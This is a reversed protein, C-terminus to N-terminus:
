ELIEGIVFNIHSRLQRAAPLKMDRPVGVRDRLYVLSKVVNETHLEGTSKIENALQNLESTITEHGDLLAIAILRLSSDVSSYVSENAKANPDALPASFPPMGKSGAGRAAFAVINKHNYSLREVAERRASDEDGCFHWDPEIGGLDPVLPIEWSGRSDDMLREGNIAREYKEGDRERTCGGLQPPLDWAHTYYDSKTVIYSPLTEMADFWKNIAPYDTSQGKPVRIQFGKFFIMSACMRELFPAFMFDVLSLNKGMFFDGGKSANLEDEVQNLVNIFYGKSRESGTLWNMWAGFLNRELRLLEQAKMRSVTDEESPLLPKHDPFISELAFMIDNSQNYIAGDIMAVPVAGSPQIRMFDRPKDGYCRMNIKEVRYPIRKEELTMWVKQCYPCWSAHDKYFIVRIDEEKNSEDFLRIKNLPSAVGIGKAVNSRFVKEDPTQKSELKKQIDDWTTPIISRLKLDLGENTHIGGSSMNISSKISSVMDGFLSTVTNFNSSKSEQLLLHKGRFSIQPYTTRSTATFAAASISSSSSPRLPLQTFAQSFSEFNFGGILALIVLSSSHVYCAWRHNYRTM